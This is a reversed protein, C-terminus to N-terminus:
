LLIWSRGHRTACAGQTLNSKCLAPQAADTFCPRSVGHSAAMLQLQVSGDRSHRQSSNSSTLAAHSALSDTMLYYNYQCPSTLHTWPM